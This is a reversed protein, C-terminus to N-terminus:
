VYDENGKRMLVNDKETELVKFSCDLDYDIEYQCQRVHSLM